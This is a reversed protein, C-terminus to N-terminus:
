RSGLALPLTHRLSLEGALLTQAADVIRRRRPEDALLELTAEGLRPTAAEVYHVGPVLPEPRELPETVMAAGAAAALIFRYLPHSDPVRHIDIVVRSRGLVKTRAAGYTHQEVQALEVGSQRLTAEIESLLRYRRAKRDVNALSLVDIDREAAPAALAGAYAAHYGFPVVAVDLGATLAGEARTQTDIVIRDFAPAHRRLLALQTLPERVNAADERWRRWTASRELPPLVGRTLDLLKGTPLWRHLPNSLEDARRPLPETHWLVRRAAHSRSLLNPYHRAQGVAVLMDVTAEQAGTDVQRAEMGLEGAAVEVAHGLEAIFGWIGENAIGLRDPWGALGPESV